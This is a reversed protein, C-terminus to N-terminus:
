RARRLARRLARDSRALPEEALALWRVREGAVGVFLNRGAGAAELVEVVGGIVFRPRADLRGRARRARDGRAVGNASHGRGSTMILEAPGHGGRYGVRVSGRGILCWRDVGHSHDHPVGLRGVVRKRSMGLAVRGVRRGRLEGGPEICGVFEPTGAYVQDREEPTDVRSTCHSPPNTELEVMVGGGGSPDFFPQYAAPVFPTADMPMGGIRLNRVSVGGVGRAIDFWYDGDWHYLEPEAGQVIWGTWHDRQFYFCKTVAAAVRAPEQLAFDLIGLDTLNQNTKDFEVCFPDAAPDPFDTGTGVKQLECRFPVHGDYPGVIEPPSQAGAPAAALLLVVV